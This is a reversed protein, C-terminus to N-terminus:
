VFISPQVLLMSVRDRRELLGPAVERYLQLLGRSATIVGKDKSKRYDILDKLLYRKKDMVWPQRRCIERIANIGAAIVESSVGDNVFENAIKTVVPHLDEPPVLEHISQALAVLIQTVKLQHYTLYRISLHTLFRFLNVHGSLSSVQLYLRLIGPYAAQTSGHCAISAAHDAGQAGALITQRHFTLPRDSRPRPGWKGHL